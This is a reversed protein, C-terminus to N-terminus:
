APVASTGTSKAMPMRRVITPKAKLTLATGNMEKALEVARDYNRNSIFISKAGRSLLSQACVRSMEGAGILLVVDQREKPDQWYFLESKPYTFSRVKGDRVWDAHTNGIDNWTTFSADTERKETANNVEAVAQYGSIIKIKTGLLYNMVAPNIYPESSRGSSGSTIERRRLDELGRADVTHWVLFVRTADATRGIWNMRRVDYKAAADGTAQPKADAEGGIADM